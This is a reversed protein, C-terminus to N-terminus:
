KQQVILGQIVFSIRTYVLPDSDDECSYDSEPEGPTMGVKPLKLKTKQGEPPAYKGSTLNFTYRFQPGNPGAKAKVLGYSYENSVQWHVAFSPYTGGVLIPTQDEYNPGAGGWEVPCGLPRAAYTTTPNFQLISGFDIEASEGNTCSSFRMISYSANQAKQTYSLGPEFWVVASDMRCTFLVSASAPALLVTPSAVVGILGGVAFRRLM